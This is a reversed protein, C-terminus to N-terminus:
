LGKQKKLWERGAESIEWIGRKSDKKLHGARTLDWRAWELRNEWHQRKHDSALPLFDYENLIPKLKPFAKKRVESVTGSGGLEVLAELLPIKYLVQPTRKGKGIQTKLERIVRPARYPKDPILRTEISEKFLTKFNEQFAILEKAKKIFEEAQQYNGAQMAEAGRQNFEEITLKVEDILLDFAARIGGKSM